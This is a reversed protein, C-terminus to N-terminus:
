PCPNGHRAMGGTTGTPRSRRRPQCRRHIRRSSSRSQHKSLAVPLGIFRCSNGKEVFWIECVYTMNWISISVGGSPADAAKSITATRALDVYQLQSLEEGNM